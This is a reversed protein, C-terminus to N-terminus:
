RVVRRRVARWEIPSDEPTVQFFVEIGHADLADLAEVHAQTLSVSKIARVSGPRSGLNGVNVRELSVGGEVLQLVGAPERLLMLASEGMAQGIAREEDHGTLAGIAAATDIV